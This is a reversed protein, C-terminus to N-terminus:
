HKPGRKAPDNVRRSFLQVGSLDEVDARWKLWGPKLIPKRHYGAFKPALHTPSAVPSRGALWTHSQQSAPNENSIFLNLEIDRRKRENSNTVTPVPNAALEAKACIRGVPV